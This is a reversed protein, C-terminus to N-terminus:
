VGNHIYNASPSYRARARTGRFISIALLRVSKKILSLRSLVGAGFLIERTKEIVRSGPIIEVLSPRRDKGRRGDRKGPRALGLFERFGRASARTIQMRNIKILAAGM